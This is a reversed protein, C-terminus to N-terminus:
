SPRSKMRIWRKMRTQARITFFINRYRSVQIRLRCPRADFRDQPPLPELLLCGPQHASGRVVPRAIAAAQQMFRTSRPLTRDAERDAAPQDSVFDALRIEARAALRPVPDLLECFLQVPGVQSGPCLPRDRRAARLVCRETARQLRPQPPGMAANRALGFNAAFLSDRMCILERRCDDAASDIARLNPAAFDAIDLYTRVPMSSLLWSGLTDPDGPREGSESLLAKLERRRALNLRSTRWAKSPGASVGPM